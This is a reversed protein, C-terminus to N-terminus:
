PHRDVEGLEPRLPRQVRHDAAEVEVPRDELREDRGDQVVEGGEGGAHDDRGVAGAPPRLVRDGGPEALGEDGVGDAGAERESSATKGKKRRTKRKAEDRKVTKGVDHRTAPRRNEPGPPRGPGPKGPKPAGALCPLTAHINRFGRRVRAPTLCGPPSPRQWPLRLGAALRRALYLQAYCALILWTWRGAAAPDRLKPRTWGPVQKFLRFTHEIDFRRLFAQWTRNVEEASTGARSSWLRLPEAGRHGPLHQVQLRILTGEIVPLGGDHDEWGARSTLRQHLRGWAVATATGYRTTGTVTTVAPAPWTAEEALKLVAGHRSPRGNAGPGRPPAPFYMVRGSRM